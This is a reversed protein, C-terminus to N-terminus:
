EVMRERKKEGDREKEREGERAPWGAVGGVGAGWGREDDCGVLAKFVMRMSRRCTGEYRFSFPSAGCSGQFLVPPCVNPAGPLAEWTIDGNM